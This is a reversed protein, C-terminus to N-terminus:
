FLDREAQDALTIKIPSLTAAYPIEPSPNLVSLFEMIFAM